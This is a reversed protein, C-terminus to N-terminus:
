RKRQETREARSKIYNWQNGLDKEIEESWATWQAPTLLPRISEEPVGIVFAGIFWTQIMGRNGYAAEYSPFYQRVVGQVLPLLRAHQEGTLRVSEDLKALALRAVAELRYNERSAIASEWASKQPEPLVSKLMNRWLGEDAPNGANGFSFRLQGAGGLLMRITDPTADQVQGGVYSEANREWDRLSREVAGKAATQLVRVDREGLGTARKVDAVRAEMAVQRQQREERAAAVLFESVAREVDVPSRDADETGTLGGSETLGYMRAEIEDFGDWVKRQVEDLVRETAVRQDVNLLRVYFAVMSTGDFTGPNPNAEVLARMIREVDRRQGATLLVMRDIETVLLRVQAEVGRAEQEDCAKRWRQQEEASLLESVARTWSTQAEIRYSRARKSNFRVFANSAMMQQREMDDMGLLGATRDAEIQRSREGTAQQVAAQFRSLREPALNFMSRVEGVLSEAEAALRNKEADLQARVHERVQKEVEAREAEEAKEWAALQGASLTDRIARQWDPDNLAEDAKSLRAMSFGVAGNLFSRRMDDSFGNFVRRIKSDWGPLLRKVLAAGADELKRVTADDLVAAGKIDSRVRALEALQRDRYQELTATALQDVEQEKRKRRDAVEKRWRALQEATLIRDLAKQWSPQDEPRTGGDCLNRSNLAMSPMINEVSEIFQPGSVRYLGRWADLLSNTWPEMSQEVAEPYAAELQRAGEADLGTVAIVDKILKSAETLRAQKKTPVLRSIGTRLRLEIEEPLRDEARM